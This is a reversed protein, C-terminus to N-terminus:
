KTKKDLIETEIFSQVDDFRTPPPVGISLLHRETSFNIVSHLQTVNLLYVRNPQYDLKQMDYMMGQDPPQAFLCLSDYGDLLVNLCTFRSIDRHWNYSTNASTKYVALRNHSGFKDIISMLAPETEFLETPLLLLTMQLVKEWDEEKSKSVLDKVSEVFAPSVDIGTDFFYDSM